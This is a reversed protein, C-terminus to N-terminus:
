DEETVTITDGVDISGGCEAVLRLVAQGINLTTTTDEDLAISSLEGSHNSLRVIIRAM